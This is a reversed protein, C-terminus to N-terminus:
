CHAQGCGGAARNNTCIADNFIVITTIRLLPPPSFPFSSSLVKRQPWRKIGFTRCIQKLLTTCLGLHQAAQKIPMDFHPEIMERTIYQSKNADTARRKNRDGDKKKEMVIKVKKKSPKTFSESDSDEDRTRKSLASSDEVDRLKPM